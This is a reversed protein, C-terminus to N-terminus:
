VNALWDPLKWLLLPSLSLPFLFAPRFAGNVARAFRISTAYNSMLACLFSFSRVPDPVFFFRCLFLFMLVVVTYCELPIFVIVAYFLCKDWCLMMVDHCKAVLVVSDCYLVISCLVPPFLTCVTFDCHM